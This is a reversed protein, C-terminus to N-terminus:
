LGYNMEGNIWEIMLDGELTSNLKYQKYGFAKTHGYKLKDPYFSHLHAFTVTNSPCIDKVFAVENEVFNGLIGEGEASKEGM